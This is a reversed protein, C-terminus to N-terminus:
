CSARRLSLVSGEADAGILLQGGPAVTMDAFSPTPHAYASGRGGPNGCPLGHVLIKREGTTLSISILENTAVDVTFLDDGTIALGQPAGLDEVVPSPSGADLRIVRGADAESVYCTGDRGLAIGMPRELGAAVSVAGDLNVSLVRGAAAEAVVLGGSPVAAMGYIDELGDALTKTSGVARDYFSITCGTGVYAATGLYLTDDGGAAVGRCFGPLKPAPRTVTGDPAIRALSMEDAAYVTGDTTATVGLPGVFGPAVVERYGSNSLLETIAGHVNHSVFTRGAATLALNDLGKHLRAVLTKDGSRPSIRVVEGNGSQTVLLSGGRDFKVAVPVALGSAVRAPEGGELPVRWIEGLGVVPFYILNDPGVAFANPRPLGSAILRRPRGDRYLEFMRGGDRCEDVLIRDGHVTLGNAAPLDNAFIAVEGDPARVSVCGARVDTIYMTGMSDFAVDDPGLLAGDAEVATRRAGTDVEIAVVEGGYWAAVYLEGDPGFQMGNAGFLPSPGALRTLAWGESVLPEDLGGYRQNRNLHRPSQDDSGM